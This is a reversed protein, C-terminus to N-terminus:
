WMVKFNPKFDKKLECKLNSAKLLNVVEIALAPAASLAPSQTGAVNIFHKNGKAARLVFDNTEIDIPRSGAFTMVTKSLDLSPIIKNGIKGILDYKEQTILRTENKPVNEEATPGVLVHGDTTPAVVVGKGFITPVMFCISNIKNRQTRELIRYEGRRTTLKFDPYGAMAAIEDAYHGAVNIISKTYYIKDKNITIKFLEDKKSYSIATVDSSEFLTANNNIAAGFFARSAKVPDIAWSIDCILGGIVERSLNPERKFLEEASVIKMSEKPLHNTLGREYLMKVDDMEKKNFALILSDVKARPFELHKFIDNRWLEGGLVNYKAKLTNPVADFGGHIVGSNARSTEDAIVSNKEFIVTDLNYKSLEYAIAAGIIGAGIIVVDYNKM